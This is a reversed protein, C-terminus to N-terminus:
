SSGAPSRVTMVPCPASRVVHEAVSGLLLHSLGTRGQTGMVILDVRHASAYDLIAHAPRGTVVTTVPADHGTGGALRTLHAAAETPAERGPHPRSPAYLNVAYPGMEAPEVVHLLHLTAGFRAGITRAHELARHSPESFDIPVLIASFGPADAPTSATSADTV